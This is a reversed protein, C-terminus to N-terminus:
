GKRIPERRLIGFRRIRLRMAGIVAMTLGLAISADGVNFAPLEVEWSALRWAFVLWDIVYGVWLRGALNALVGAVLLLGGFRVPWDNDRRQRMLMAGFACGLFTMAYFAVVPVMPPATELLGFTLGRNSVYTLEVAFWHRSVVDLPVTGFEAQIPPTGLAFALARSCVERQLGDVTAVHAFATQAHLKSSQDLLIM